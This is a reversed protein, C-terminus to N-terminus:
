DGRLYPAFFRGNETEIEGSSAVINRDDLASRLQGPTLGLKAWEESEVELYIREDALGWMGVDSVSDLTELDDEILEAFVEMERDSYPREIEKMGPAPIQYMALCVSSVDGFNANVNPSMAGAPLRGEIARVENRLEDWTQDFETVYDDLEVQIVAGGAWSTSRVEQIGDM